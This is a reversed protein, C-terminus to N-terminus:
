LSLATLCGVLCLRFMLEYLVIYDASTCVDRFPHLNKASHTYSWSENTVLSPRLQDLFKYRPKAKM